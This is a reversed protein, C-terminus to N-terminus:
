DADGYRELDGQVGVMAVVVDSKPAGTRILTLCRIRMVRSLVHSIAGVDGSTGRIFERRALDYLL